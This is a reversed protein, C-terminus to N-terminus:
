HLMDFVTTVNVFPVQHAAANGQVTMPLRNPM